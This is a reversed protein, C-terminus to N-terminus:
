LDKTQSVRLMDRELGTDGRRLWGPAKRPEGVQKQDNYIRTGEAGFSNKRTIRSQITQERMKGM